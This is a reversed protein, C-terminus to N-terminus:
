INSRAQRKKFGNKMVLLLVGFLLLHAILVVMHDFVTCTSHNASFLFPIKGLLLLVVFLFFLLHMRGKDKLYKIITFYALVLLIATSIINFMIITNMAALLAIITVVAFLGYIKHDKGGFIAHALTVLGLMYIAMHMVIGPYLALTPCINGMYDFMHTHMKLLYFINTLLLVLFSVAFLVFAVSVFRVNRMKTLKYVKYSYYAVFATVIFVFAELLIGYEIFWEPILTAHVM